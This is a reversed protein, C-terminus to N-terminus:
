NLPYSVGFFIGSYSDKLSVNMEVTGTLHRYGDVPIMGAVGVNLNAVTQYTNTDSDLSVGYPIAIFPYAEEGWFSFGKSLTPAVSVNNRRTGFEKANSFTTKVSFRPQTMYDPFIEFDAGAFVRNEREGGSFGAGADLVIGSTLKHTYRAQIGVGGGTSTVGTAEASLMSKDLMLPFTSLGTGFSGWASSFGMLSLGIVLIRMIKMVFEGVM